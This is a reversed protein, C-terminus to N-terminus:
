IKSLISLLQHQSDVPFIDTGAYKGTDPAVDQYFWFIKYHLHSKIFSDLNQFQLIKFYKLNQERYAYVNFINFDPEGGEFRYEDIFEIKANLFRKLEVIEKKPKKFSIVPLTFKGKYSNKLNSMLDFGLSNFDNFEGSFIFLCTNDKRIQSQVYKIYKEETNQAAYLEKFLTKSGLDLWETIQSKTIVREVVDSKTSLDLIKGILSNYVLDTTKIKLQNALQESIKKTNNEISESNNVEFSDLFLKLLEDSLKHEIALDIEEVSNKQDDPESEKQKKYKLISKLDELDKPKVVKKDNQLHVRLEFKLKKNAQFDLLMPLIAKRTLGADWKKYYKCQIRFDGIDIDEGEGELTLSTKCENLEIITEQFQYLYGIIKNSASRSSM